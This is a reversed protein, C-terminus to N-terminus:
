TIKYASESYAFMKTIRGSTRLANNKKKLVNQKENEPNKRKEIKQKAPKEEDGRLADTAQFTSSLKARQAEIEKRRKARRM